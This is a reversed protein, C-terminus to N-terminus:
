IMLSQSPGRVDQFVGLRNWEIPEHKFLHDYLAQGRPGDPETNFDWKAYMADAEVLQAHCEDLSLGGRSADPDILAIIPKQKLTSSVLERMCNKSTFYGKSCYVLVATTRDIYGELDGIEELDDVDLFIVLDPVMELLRQKVIRMQDQGTGWVHSLFTHYYKVKPSPSEPLTPASVPEDNSKYRLRRAKSAQAERRMRAGEISAQVLFLVFSMVLAGIVSAIMIMSLTAQNVIYTDQQENSMKAQIDPLGVFEYDKFAYCCLFIVGM